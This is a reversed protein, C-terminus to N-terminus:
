VWALAAATGAGWLASLSLLLGVDRRENGARHAVFTAALLGFLVCLMVSDLLDM